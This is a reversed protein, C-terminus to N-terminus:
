SIWAGLRHKITWRGNKKELLIYQGEGGIRGTVYGVLVVAQTRSHNFGVRSAEEIAILDPYKTKLQKWYEIPDQPLEENLKSTLLVAPAGFDFHNKWEYSKANKKM